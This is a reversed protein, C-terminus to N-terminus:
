SVLEPVKPKAKSGGDSDSISISPDKMARWEGLTVEDGVEVREDGVTAWYRLTMKAPRKSLGLLDRFPKSHFVSQRMMGLTIDPPHAKGLLQEPDLGWDELSM